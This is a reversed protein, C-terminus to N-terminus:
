LSDVHAPVPEKSMLPDIAQRCRPSPLVEEGGM